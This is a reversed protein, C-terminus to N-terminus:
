TVCAFFWILFNLVVVFIKEEKKGMFIWTVWWIKVKQEMFVRFWVRSVDVYVTQHKQLLVLAYYGDYWRWFLYIYLLFWYIKQEKMQKMTIKTNENTKQKWQQKTKFIWYFVKTQPHFTGYYFLIWYYFIIIHWLSRDNHNFFISKSEFQTHSEHEIITNQIMLHEMTIMVM